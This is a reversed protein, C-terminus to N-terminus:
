LIVKEKEIEEYEYAILAKGFENLQRRRVNIDLVFEKEKLKDEFEMIEYKIQIGLRRRRM